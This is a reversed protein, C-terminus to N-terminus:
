SILLQLGTGEGPLQLLVSPINESKSNTGGPMKVGILFKFHKAKGHYVVDLYYFTAFEM